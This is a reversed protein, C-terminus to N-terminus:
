AIALYEGDCKYSLLFGLPRLPLPNVYRGALYAVSLRDTRGTEREGSNSPQTGWRARTDVM